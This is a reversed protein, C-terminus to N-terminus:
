VIIQKRNKLKNSYFNFYSYKMNMCLNWITKYYKYEGFVPKIKLIDIIDTLCNVNKINKKILNYRAISNKFGAGNNLDEKKLKNNTYHNTHILIGNKPYIVEFRTGSTHEIVVMNGEKDAIFYNKPFSIPVKTFMEICEEVNKCKLALLEIMDGANIGVNNDVKHSAYTMGIYLGVDNIADETFYTIESYPVDMDSVGVFKYYNENSPVIRYREVYKEAKKNWDYSRGIYTTDNIMKGFISCQGTPLELGILDEISNHVISVIGNYVELKEPFFKKYIKIIKNTTAIDINKNNKSINNRNNKYHKGVQKGIQTFTGEYTKINEVDDRVLMLMESGTTNAYKIHQNVIYSNQYSYFPSYKINTISGKFVVRLKGLNKNYYTKGLKHKGFDDGCRHTIFWGRENLDNNIISEIENQPIYIYNKENM